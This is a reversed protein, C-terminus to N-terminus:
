YQTRRNRKVEKEKAKPDIKVKPRYIKKYKLACVKEKNFNGICLKMEPREAIMMGNKLKGIVAVNM